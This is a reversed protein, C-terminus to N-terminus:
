FLLWAFALGFIIAVVWWILSSGRTTTHSSNGTLRSWIKTGVFISGIIGVGVGIVFMVSWNFSTQLIMELLRSLGLFLGIIISTVFWASVFTVVGAPAKNM